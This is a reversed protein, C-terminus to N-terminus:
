VNENEKQLTEILEVFKKIYVAKIPKHSPVTLILGCKSCFTVHSTGPQRYIIGLRAAIAKLDDIKWDNQPNSKMAKLKKDLTSM